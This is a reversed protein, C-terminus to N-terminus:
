RQWELPWYGECCIAIILKGDPGAILLHADRDFDSSEIPEGCESCEDMPTDMLESPWAHDASGDFARRQPMEGSAIIAAQQNMYRMMREEITM